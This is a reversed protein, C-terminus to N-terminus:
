LRSLLAQGEEAWEVEFGRDLLYPAALAAKGWFQLRGQQDRDETPRTDDMLVLSLTALCPFLAEVEPRPSAAYQGLM